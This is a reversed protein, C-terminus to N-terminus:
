NIPTVTPSAPLCLRLRKKEESREYLPAYFIRSFINRNSNAACEESNEHEIDTTYTLITTGKKKQALALLRKSKWDDNTFLFYLVQVCYNVIM